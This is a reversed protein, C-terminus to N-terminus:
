KRYGLLEMRAMIVVVCWISITVKALTPYGTFWYVIGGILALGIIIYDFIKM